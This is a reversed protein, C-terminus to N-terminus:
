LGLERCIDAILQDDYPYRSRKDNMDDIILQLYLKKAM